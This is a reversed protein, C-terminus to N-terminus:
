QKFIGANFVTLNFTYREVFRFVFALLLECITFALVCLLLPDKLICQLLLHLIGVESVSYYYETHTLVATLFCILVIILSYKECTGSQGRHHSEWHLSDGARLASTLGNLMLVSAGEVRMLGTSVVTRSMRGILVNYAEVELTGAQWLAACTVSEETCLNEKKKQM